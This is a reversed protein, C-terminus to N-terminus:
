VRMRQGHHQAVLRRADDLLDTGLDGVDPLAVVDDGAEGHEAAGALVAGGATGGDAGVGAHLQQRALGLAQLEVALLQM